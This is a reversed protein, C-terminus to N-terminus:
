SRVGLSGSSPAPNKFQANWNTGLRAQTHKKQLKKRCVLLLLNEWLANKAGVYM